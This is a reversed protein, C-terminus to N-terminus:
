PGFITRQARNEFVKLRLEERLTLFWTGCGYVFCAFNHKQIDYYKYKQTAFQFFFSGAGVSLLCDRVNLSSKIEEQFSKQNKSNTGLYKFREVMEFSSGGKRIGHSRGANQDRCIIYKTKDANVELGSDKSAVVLSTRAKKYYTTEM